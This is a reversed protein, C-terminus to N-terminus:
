ETLEAPRKVAMGNQLFRIGATVLLDGEELGQLVEIGNETLDGTEIARREVQAGDGAPVAVYAFRGERDEAVAHPPIYIHSAMGEEGFTLTVEATMGPRIDDSSKSLRLTVPFTTAASGSAAGIETITATFTQGPISDFSVNARDGVEMAGVWQEPAGFTVEPRSGANLVAITTGAGVNENAEVNVAAIDGAIPAQLVTYSLRAQALELKKSLSEVQARASEAQARAGDLEAISINNNEYLGRVREYNATASRAQAQAQNLSARVDQVQLEYDKDELRAIVQNQSVRDGMKVNLSEVTGSVRFSLKSELGAKSAGSFTRIRQGGSAAVRMVRVPRLVENSPKAEKGCGSNLLLALAICPGTAIRSLRNPGKARVGGASSIM